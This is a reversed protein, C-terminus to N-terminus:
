MMEGKWKRERFRGYVGGHEREFAYGKGMSIKTVYMCVHVHMHIYLDICM